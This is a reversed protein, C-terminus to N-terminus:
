ETFKEAFADNIDDDYLDSEFEENLKNLKRRGNLETQVDKWTRPSKGTDERDDDQWPIDAMYRQDHNVSQGPTDNAYAAVLEDSGMEGAGHEEEVRISHRRRYTSPRHPKGKTARGGRIGVRYDASPIGQDHAWELIDFDEELVNGALFSNVRQFAAREDDNDYVGRAFLEALIEFPVGSADAKMGLSEAIYREKGASEEIAKFVNGSGPNNPPPGDYNKKPEPGSQINKMSRIQIKDKGEAIMKHFQSESRGLNHVFKHKDLGFSGPGNSSMVQQYKRLAINITNLDLQSQKGDGWKINFHGRLAKAKRLQYVIGSDGSDADMDNNHSSKRAEGIDDINQIFNKMREGQLSLDEDEKGWVGKKEGRPMKGYRIPNTLRDDDDKSRRRHFNKSM